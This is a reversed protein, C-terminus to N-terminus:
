LSGLRLPAESQNLEPLGGESSVHRAQGETEVWATVHSALGGCHLDVQRPSSPHNRRLSERTMVVIAVIMLIVVIMLILIM